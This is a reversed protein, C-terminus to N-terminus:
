TRGRQRRECHDVSIRLGPSLHDAKIAWEREPNNTTTEAKKARRKAKARECVESKPPDCKAEAGFRKAVFPPADSFAKFLKLTSTILYITGKWSFSEVV